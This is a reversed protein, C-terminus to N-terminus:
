FISFIVKSQHVIFKRMLKLACEKETGIVCKAIWLNPDHVDPLLQQESIDEDVFSYDNEMQSGVKESAYKKMYYDAEEAEDDPRSIKNYLEEFYFKNYFKRIINSSFQAATDKAYFTAFNKKIKTRFIKKSFQNSIIKEVLFIGMSFVGEGNHVTLYM